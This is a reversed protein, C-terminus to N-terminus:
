TGRKREEREKNKIIEEKREEKKHGKGGRGKERGTHMENWGANIKNRGENTGEEMRKKGEYIGANEKKERKGKRTKMNKM